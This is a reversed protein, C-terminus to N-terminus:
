DLHVPGKIHPPNSTTMHIDLRPAQQGHARTQRARNAPIEGGDDTVGRVDSELPPKALM